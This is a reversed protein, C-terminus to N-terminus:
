TAQKEFAEALAYGSTSAQGPYNEIEDIFLLQGGPGLSDVAITRYGARAAYSAACLGAPGCGIVLIDYDAM